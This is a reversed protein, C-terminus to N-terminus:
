AGVRAVTRWGLRVRHVRQRYFDRGTRTVASGHLQRAVTPRAASQRHTAWDLGRLQGLRWTGQGLWLLLLIGKDGRRLRRATAEMQDRRCDRGFGHRQVTTPGRGTFPCDLDASIRILTQRAGSDAGRPLM